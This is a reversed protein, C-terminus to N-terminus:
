RKALKRTKKREKVLATRRQQIVYLRLAEEATRTRFLRFDNPRVMLIDEDHPFDGHRFIFNLVIHYSPLSSM